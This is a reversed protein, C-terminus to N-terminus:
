AFIGLVELLRERDSSLNELLNNGDVITEGSSQYM